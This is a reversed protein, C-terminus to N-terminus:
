TVATSAATATVSGKCEGEAHIGTRRQHVGLYGRLSTFLPGPLAKTLIDAVNGSSPIRGVILEGNDVRERIWHYKVDLHKVRNHFAQDGCLVVAASNDCLLPTPLASGFGLEGLLTRLWVLERGAESAAMYEAACTSDAITKQKKSSWSVMGSGLSFCHGAVSRRGEHRPDNAYDSDCYGILSLSTSVGGLELEMDRTGKLYRVVRVAAQWHAERYCSLFRSLKSVAFMIDPRTGSAVYMLSGVLSRYPLKALQEREEASLEEQPDPTLLQAGHLIPTNAPNADKQGYVSIIKDILATQSLMITRNARDRRVAIGVILKPEGLATIQWTAELESRFRKVENETSSIAAMDDVHLVVITMDGNDSRRWYVCWECESRTFGWSLFSDHLARNWIRSSQRMGYLGRHLEWVHDEKGPHAFGPPQEMYQREEEPLIGNLFATKVDYQEIHWDNVAAIHLAVHLSELRATPSTTKSFDRGWM